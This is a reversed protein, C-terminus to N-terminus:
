GGVEELKPETVRALIQRHLSEWERQDIVGAMVAMQIVGARYRQDRRLRLLSLLLNRASAREYTNM